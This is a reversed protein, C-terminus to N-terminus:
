SQRFLVLFWRGQVAFFSSYTHQEVVLKNVYKDFVAKGWGFAGGGYGTIVVRDNASPEGTEHVRIPTTKASGKFPVFDLTALDHGALVRIRKVDGTGSQSRDNGNVM